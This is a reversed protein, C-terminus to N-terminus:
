KNDQHERMPKSIEELNINNLGWDKSNMDYNSNDQVIQRGAAQVVWWDLSPRKNYFQLQEVANGPEWGGKHAIHYSCM